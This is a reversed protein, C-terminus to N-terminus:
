RQITAIWATIDVVAQSTFVPAGDVGDVVADQDQLLFGFVPMPGGHSLLPDRGDIRRVVDEVPFVDGARAAIGTLDAPMVTLVETMPGDGGGSLGHCTACNQRFLMAGREPDPEGAHAPSLGALLALLVLARKM